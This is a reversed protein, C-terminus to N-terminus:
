EENSEETENEEIDLEDIGDAASICTKELFTDYKNQIDNLKISYHKFIDEVEMANFRSLQQELKDAPLSVDYLDTIDIGGNQLDTLLAYKKVLQYNYEFNLPTTDNCIEYLVDMGGDEVFKSYLTTQQQFYGIIDSIDISSNGLSYLNYLSSYIAQYKKLAFDNLRLPYDAAIILDNDLYLSTLVKKIARENYLM